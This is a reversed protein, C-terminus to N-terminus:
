PRHFSAAVQQLLQTRGRAENANIEIKQLITIAIPMLPLGFWWAENRFQRFKLKFGYYKGDKDSQMTLFPATNFTATPDEWAWFRNLVLPVTVKDWALQQFVASFKRQDSESNSPLLIPRHVDLVIVIGGLELVKLQEAFSQLANKLGCVGFVSTICSISNEAFMALEDHAEKAAALRYADGKMFELERVGPVIWGNERIRAATENKSRLLMAENIELGVAKVSTNELCFIRFM